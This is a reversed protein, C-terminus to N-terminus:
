RYTGISHDPISKMCPAAANGGARSRCRMKGNHYQRERVHAAIGLLVVEDIAHGLAEGRVQRADIAREHNCAVGREGELASGNVYLLQSTLQVDPIYELARHLTRSVAKPHVHLQDVGFGAVVEPRLTKVLGNGVEKVHLVFDYRPEGVRELRLENLSLRPPRLTRQM